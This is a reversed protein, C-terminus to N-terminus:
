PTHSTRPRRASSWALVPVLVAAVVVHLLVLSVHDGDSRFTGSWPMTAVLVVLAVITWILTARRPVFRELVALFAWGALAPVLAVGATEVAGIDQPEEGGLAPAYLDHGIVPEILVWAFLAALVASAVAALRVPWLRTHIGPHATSALGAAM